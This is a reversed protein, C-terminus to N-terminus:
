YKKWHQAQASQWWNSTLSELQAEDDSNVWDLYLTDGSVYWAFAPPGSTKIVNVGNSTTLVDTISETWTSTISGHSNRWSAPFRAEVVARNARTKAREASISALEERHRKPVSASAM